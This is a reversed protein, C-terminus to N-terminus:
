ASKLYNFLELWDLSFKIRVVKGPFEVNKITVVKPIHSAIDISIPELGFRESPISIQRVKVSEPQLLMIGKSYDTRYQVTAGFDLVSWAGNINATVQNGNLRFEVGNLQVPLQHEAMYESLKRKALNNIDSETLILETSRNEAMQVLKDNWALDSYNM